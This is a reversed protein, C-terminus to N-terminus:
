IIVIDKEPQCWGLVQFFDGDESSDYWFIGLREFTRERNSVEKLVMFTNLGPELNGWYLLFVEKVERARDATMTYDMQILYRLGDRSSHYLEYAPPTSDNGEDALKADMRVGRGDLKLFGGVLPGMVDAGQEGTDCEVQTINVDIRTGWLGYDMRNQYHIPGHISIWSWSPAIYTEPKRNIHSISWCLQHALNKEWLGALYRGGAGTKGAETAIGSLAVLRDKEYTLDLASYRESVRMWSHSLPTEGRDVSAHHDLKFNSLVTMGGCQCDRMSKCEWKMEEADFHVVRPSLLREQLVWGRKMLTRTSYFASYNSGFDTHRWHPQERVWVGPSGPVPYRPFQHSLHSAMFMGADSGTAHAASITLYSNGYVSAMRVSQSHWDEIDDQIICM